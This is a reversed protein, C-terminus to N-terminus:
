LRDTISIWHTRLFIFIFFSPSRQLVIQNRNTEFMCMYVSTRRKLIKVQNKSSKVYLSVSFFCCWNHMNKHLRSFVACRVCWEVSENKEYAIFIIHFLLLLLFFFFIHHKHSCTHVISWCYIPVNIGHIYIYLVDTAVGLLACAM